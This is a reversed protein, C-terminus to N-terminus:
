LFVYCHFFPAQILDADCLQRQRGYIIGSFTSPNVELRLFSNEWDISQYLIIMTRNWEM